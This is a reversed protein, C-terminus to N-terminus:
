EEEIKTVRAHTFLTAVTGAIAAVVAADTGKKRDPLILTILHMAVALVGLVAFVTMYAINCVAFLSFEDM